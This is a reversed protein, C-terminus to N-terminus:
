SIKYLTALEKLEIVNTTKTKDFIRSKVSSITNWKLNLNSAIENTGLGRLMYHLIELERPTFGSFPGNGGTETNKGRETGTETERETNMGTAAQDNQFFLRLMRITEEEPASKSIFQSIGLQKLAKGYVSGPQMSLITIRLEPYLSRINPLVELSSGDSLNIDLVLHTYQRKALERMLENCNSAECVDKIGLKVECLVRIGKRIMIHDDALIIKPQM